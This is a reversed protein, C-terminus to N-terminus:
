PLHYIAIRLCISTATLAKLRLPHTADDLGGCIIADGDRDIVIGAGGAAATLGQVTVGHAADPPPISDHCTSAASLDNSPSRAAQSSLRANSTLAHAAPTSQFPALREALGM